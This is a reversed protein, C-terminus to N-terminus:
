NEALFGTIAASVKTALAKWAQEHDDSSADMNTLFLFGSNGSNSFELNCTTGPDSGDHQISQDHLFWFIGQNQGAAAPVVGGPLLAEFLLDYGEASFLTTSQGQSGRMMDLLYKALDENSTYVSGDPYSDNGYAPLPTNQNWYLTALQDPAIMSQDYTSAHMGLPTFIYTDVYEDFPMQVATEVLYAALSTAINSYDWKSGPATDSFNATDYLDGGPQYYAALFEGLPLAERQQANLASMFLQAGPTSLDEGPLVHYAQSYIEYNDLLGSTHTVLHKVRIIGDAQKPNQVTFPLIDNIDTELTFHGQDIAKVIAAAVFTKSISGIPQVTQNNFVRGAAIDAMGFAHQYIIEDEKVISIAFGPAESQQYLDTLVATLEEPTSSSPPLSIDDDNKKCSFISLTLVVLCIYHMSRQM